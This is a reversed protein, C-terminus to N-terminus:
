NGWPHATISQTRKTQKTATGIPQIQNQNDIIPLNNSKSQKTKRARKM